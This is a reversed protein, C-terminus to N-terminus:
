YRIVFNKGTMGKRFFVIGMRFIDITLTVREDEKIFNWAEEMERSYNIDDIIIVTRDGSVEALKKFYGLLPEKRHDGDIFILGPKIGSAFVEPLLEGFSGKMLRVNTLGAKEFNEAAIAAISESGEMTCVVAERCSSALYMTSIGLSTGFEVILPKGFEEAMAALLIGYSGPVPSSRAIESVKRYPNKGEHTGSGMDAVKIVRDDKLLKKRAAEIESVIAPNLKNRLVRATLDFVFPSHIGHGMHGRAIILYKLYRSIRFFIMGTTM